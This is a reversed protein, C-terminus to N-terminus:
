VASKADRGPPFPGGRLPQSEAARGENDRLRSEYHAFFVKGALDRRSRVGTKAFVAKLHQQVTHPSVVLAKAIQSTSQGVLVLRTVDKERESLGYAAMLLSALRAPSATEVFVAFSRSGPAVLPAAHVVLWNGSRARVRVTASRADDATGEATASAVVSQISTPLRGARWNGDPLDELWREAGATMSEVRMASDVVVLGPADADEPELAEGLLLARRVGDALHPAVSRVFAKDRQDFLPTGPERYLSLAGWVDGNKARLAAIMEQDGGLKMNAHWRPSSSPDGGTVEHLTSVGSTLHAVDALRHVDDDFYEHELWEIPMQPVGEDFHSTLLLSTPDLTFFCPAWYHPIADTIPETCARWFSVLDRGEFSLRAIKDRARERAADAM